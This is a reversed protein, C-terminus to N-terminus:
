YEDNLMALTSMQDMTVTNCHPTGEWKAQMEFRAGIACESLQEV